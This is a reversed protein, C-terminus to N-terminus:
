NPVRLRRPQKKKEFQTMCKEYANKDLICQQLGRLGSDTDTESLKISKTYFCSFFQEAQLKCDKPAYPFFSPLKLEEM